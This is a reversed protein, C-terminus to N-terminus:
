SPLVAPRETENPLLLTAIVNTAHFLCRPDGASFNAQAGPALICRDGVALGMKSADPGLDEIVIHPYQFVDDPLILSGEPQITERVRGLCYDARPKIVPLKNEPKLIHISM